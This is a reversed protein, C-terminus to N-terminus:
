RWQRGGGDEVRADMMAVGSGGVDRAVAMGKGTTTRWRIKLAKM